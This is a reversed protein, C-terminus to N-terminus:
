CNIMAVVEDYNLPEIKIVECDNLDEDISDKGDYTSVVRELTDVVTLRDNESYIELIDILKM